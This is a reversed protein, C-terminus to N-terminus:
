IEKHAKVSTDALKLTYQINGEANTDETNHYEFMQPREISKQLTAPLSM